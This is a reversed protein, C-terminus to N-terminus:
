QLPLYLDDQDRLELIDKVLKRERFNKIAPMGTQATGEKLLKEQQDHQIEDSTQECGVVGMLCFLGLISLIKVM